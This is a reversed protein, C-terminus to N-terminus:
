HNNTDTVYINGYSDFSLTQPYLFQNSASGYSGTCGVVYRSGSSRSRVIFLNGDADLIIGTSGNFPFSNTSGNGAVTIANAQGNAFVQIRANGSDAVYLNCVVDVFIGMPKYLMNPAMGSCGTGFIIISTNTHNDLSKMVVPHLYWISCYLNNYTDVFLGYCAGSVCWISVSSAAGMSWMDAREKTDGNDM